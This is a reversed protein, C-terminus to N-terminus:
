MLLLSNNLIWDGSRLNRQNSNNTLPKIGSAEHIWSVEIFDVFDDDGESYLARRVSDSCDPLGAPVRSKKSPILKLQHNFLYKRKKGSKIMDEPPMGIRIRMLELLEHEDVAPFLPRGTVLEALICGFSWMDVAQDYPLGLVVEPSRYFRSQVYVFGSKSDICASGFDIIKM